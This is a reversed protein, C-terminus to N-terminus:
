ILSGTGFANHLIKEIISLLLELLSFISFEEEGSDTNTDDNTTNDGTTDDGTTDDGPVNPTTTDDPNVEEEDVVPVIVGNRIVGPVANKAMTNEFEVLDAQTIPLFKSETVDNGIGASRTVINGVSSSRGTFKIHNIALVTDGTNTITVKVSDANTIDGICESIDYYMETASEFPQSGEYNSGINVSETDANDSSISFNASGNVARLGLMIKEGPNVDVNFAIAKGSNLYLENQPGVSQYNAFTLAAETVNGEGDSSTPKGTIFAIGDAIGTEAANTALHNIVNVYSANKETEIYNSSDEGLPNYVRIGDIYNHLTVNSGFDARSGTKTPAVGTGGNLVSNDDFWILEVDEASLGEEELIADIEASGGVFEASNMTIGTDILNSKSTSKNKIAGAGSIYYAKTEVSYTGYASSFSVIPVQYMLSNEDLLATRDEADNYYTDVIFAKKTTGNQKVVVMQVGTDPGCASILDFGTGTFTFSAVDSNKTNADVTTYYRTGNSFKASSAYNNDFGYVDNSTSLDQTSITPTGVQSWKYDGDAGPITLADEEYLVNSAPVLKIKFWDYTGDDRKILSYGSYDNSGNEEPEKAFADPKLSYYLDLNDNTIELVGNESITKYTSQQSPINSVSCLTGNIDTDLMKQGYDLVYTYEPISFYATPFKKFPESGSSKYVATNDVNNISTNTINANANAVLGNISVKLKAGDHGKSIYRESYNYGTIEIRKDTGEGKVEAIIGSADPGTEKFQFRNLCDYYGTQLVVSYDYEEPVIFAESLQEVIVTDEALKEVGVSDNTKVDRVMLDHYTTYQRSSAESLDVAYTVMEACEGSLNDLASAEPYQSSIAKMYVDKAYSEGPTGHGILITYIFAGKEKLAKAQTIVNNAENVSGGANFAVASCGSGSAATEQGAIGDSIFIVAVNRGTEDISKYLDNNADIIGSAYKFEDGATRSVQDSPTIGNITTKLAEAQEKGWFANSYNTGTNISSSGSPYFGNTEGYQTVAFRHALGTANADAVVQDIINAATERATVYRGGTNNADYYDTTTYRYHTGYYITKNGRVRTNNGEVYITQSENPKTTDWHGGASPDGPTAPWWYYTQGHYTGYLWMYQKQDSVSSTQLYLKVFEGDVNVYIDSSGVAGDGNTIKYTDIINSDNIKEEGAVSYPALDGDIYPIMGTGDGETMSQSEDLVFIFDTPKEVDSAKYHLAGTAYTELNVTYTGDEKLEASMDTYVRNKETSSFVDNVCKYISFQGLYYNPAISEGIINQASNLADTHFTGKEEEADAFIQNNTQTEYWSDAAEKYGSVSFDNCWLYTGNKSNKLYFKGIEVIEEFVIPENSIGTDNIMSIKDNNFYFNRNSSFYALPSQIRPKATNAGIINWRLSELDDKEPNTLYIREKGDVIEVSYESIQHGIMGDYGNIQTDTSKSLKLGKFNGNADFAYLINKQIVPNMEPSEYVIIYEEDDKIDALKTVREFYIADSTEKREDELLKYPDVHWIVDIPYDCNGTKTLSDENLEWAYENMYKNSAGEFSIYLEGDIFCLGESMPMMDFHETNSGDLKHAKTKVVSGDTSTYQIPETGEASLDITGVTLTSYDDLSAIWGGIVQTAFWEDNTGTGWSRSLYVKGNDVIAYQIDEYDTSVAICHSPSGARDGENGYSGSLYSWEEESSGGQLKYGYIMSNQLAIGNASDAPIVPANYDDAGTGDEYFNGAWLIGEDYCVYATAAGGMEPLDVAAEIIVDVFGDGDYDTPNDFYSLPAYAIQDADGAIADGDEKDSDDGSYYFNYESFALGGGHDMNNVINGNGDRNKIAFAQVFDGSKADLAFIMSPLTADNHYVSVMVWDQKDYYSLGQVVFDDESSLGPIIIDTPEGAGNLFSQAYSEYTDVYSDDAAGVVRTQKIGNIEEGQASADLKLVPFAINFVTAMMVVALILSLFRKGQTVKMFKKM